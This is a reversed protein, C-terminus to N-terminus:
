VATAVIGLEVRSLLRRLGRTRDKKGFLDGPTRMSAEGEEVSFYLPTGLGSLNKALDTSLPSAHHLVLEVVVYIPSNSSFGLKESRQRMRCGKLSM